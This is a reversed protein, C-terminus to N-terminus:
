DSSNNLSKYTASKAKRLFADSFEQSYCPGHQRSKTVLLSDLMDDSMSGRFDTRNKRVQSFLRECEANSHPITLIGLMARALRDFMPKSLSDTCKALMTWQKDAASEELIESSIDIVQYNVFQAQLADVATSRDEGDKSLIMCPFKDTFFKLSSFKANQRLSVDAVQAHYLLESRLPFKAVIYNCAETYYKRVSSYFTKKEEEGLSGVVEQALVGTVLEDDDKQNKRSNYDVHTLENAAAVVSPKVFQVLLSKLLDDLEKKLTHILPSLSQLIVNKKEFFSISQSLFNAVALTLPNNLEKVIREERVEADTTSQKSDSLKSKTGQSKDVTHSTSRDTKTSTQRIQEPMGSRGTKNKAKAIQSKHITNSISCDTKTSTQGNHEPTASRGIKDKAKTNQSKHVTDSSSHDIKKSTQGIEDPTESRGIKDTHTVQGSPVQSPKVKSSKTNELKQKKSSSTECDVPSPRKKPISYSELRPSFHNNSGKKSAKQRVEEEFFLRLPKWQSAIDLKIDERLTQIAAGIKECVSDRLSNLSDSLTKPTLTNSSTSAEPTASSAAAALVTDPQATNRQQKASQNRSNPAAM